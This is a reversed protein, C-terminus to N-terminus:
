RLMSVVVYAIGLIAVIYSLPLAIAGFGLLWADRAGKANTYGPPLPSNYTKLKVYEPTGKAAM